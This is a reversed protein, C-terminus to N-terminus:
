QPFHITRLAEKEEMEIVEVDSRGFSFIEGKTSTWILNWLWFGSPMGLCLEGAAIRTHM